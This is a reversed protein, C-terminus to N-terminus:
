VLERPSFVHRSSVHNRQLKWISAPSTSSAPPIGAGTPSPRSGTSAPGTPAPGTPAFSTPASSRVPSPPLSLHAQGVACRAVTRQSTTSNALDRVRLVDVPPYFILNSWATKLDSLLGPRYADTPALRGCVPAIVVIVALIRCWSAGPFM